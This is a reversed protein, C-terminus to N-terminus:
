RRNSPKKGSWNSRCSQFAGEGVIEPRKGPQKELILSPPRELGVVKLVGLPGSDGHIASSAGDLLKGFDARRTGFGITALM